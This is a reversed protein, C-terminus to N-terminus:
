LSMARGVSAMFHSMTTAVEDTEPASGRGRQQAVRGIKTRAEQLESKTCLWRCGKPLSALFSPEDSALALATKKRSAMSAEFIAKSLQPHKDRCAPTIFITLDHKPQAYVIQQGSHGGAQLFEPSALTKGLLRSILGIGSGKAAEAFDGKPM